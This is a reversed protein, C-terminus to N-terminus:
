QITAYVKKKTHKTILERLSDMSQNKNNGRCYPYFILLKKGEKLRKIIDIIMHKSNDFKIADRKNYSKDNKRKIITFDIDINQLFKLTINTIFADLLIIKDAGKLINIFNTYCLKQVGDLTENFCWKKLFTEIEDIVVM